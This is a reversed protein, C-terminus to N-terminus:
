EEVGFVIYTGQKTSKSPTYKVEFAGNEGEAVIKIYRCIVDGKYGKETYLEKAMKKAEAKTELCTFLIEGTKPNIGQYATKYKRKGKENKIDKVSYPNERSDSVGGDVVIMCGVNKVGKTHKELYNAAFEKLSGLMPSGAAKWAQTADRMIQFPSVENVEQRNFAKIEVTKVNFKSM